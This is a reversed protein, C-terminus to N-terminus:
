FSFVHKDQIATRLKKMAANEIQRVRERSIGLNDGLEQLTLPSQDIFRKEIIYRDREKLTSLATQIKEKVLDQEEKEAFDTEMQSSSPDQLHDILTHTGGNGLDNDLSIDTTNPEVANEYIEPIIHEGPQWVALSKVPNVTSVTGSDDDLHDIGREAVRYNGEKNDDLVDIESSIEALQRTLRKKLSSSSRKVVSLTKIIFSQIHARIWWVAYTILRFGKYPDFKKIAQMLGINGEQVLDSLKIYPSVYKRYEFAVKLVFRLNSTTLKHAAEPDNHEKVRVALSFEEEKTLLPFQSIQIMYNQLSDKVIPLNMTIVGRENPLSILVRM